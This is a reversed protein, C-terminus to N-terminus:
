NVIEVSFWDCRMSDSDTATGQRDVAVALTLAATTDLTATSTSTSGTALMHTAPSATARPGSRVAGAGVVTGSAGEARCVMEFEVYWVDNDAPDINGTVALNTSGARIAFIHNETGTTATYLGQARIKVKTGVKLANAPLEYSANSFNTVTETAGTIATSAATSTTAHGGVYRDIGAQRVIFGSSAVNVRKAM